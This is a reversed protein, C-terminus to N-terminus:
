FPIALLISLTILSIATGIVVSSAALAGDGKMQDALVYSSVATPVACLILIVQLDVGSLGLWRGVLWGVLPCFVCKFFSAILSETWHGAVSISALQSGIGLLALPFASAGLVECTRILATPFIWGIRQVVLGLVCAILLPNFVFNVWVTKWSFKRETQENYIALAAVSAANYFIVVPAITLLVASELQAKQEPPLDFVTFLILPLGMFALNGRFCAQIMAGRSGFRTGVWGSVLWGVILTAISASLLTILFLEANGTGAPAGGLKYFLFVPLAIYYAFRNFGQTTDRTLFNQRRLVIGLGIVAFIPVLSNLIQM